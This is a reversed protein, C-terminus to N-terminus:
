VQDQIWTLYTRVMKRIEANDQVTTPFRQALEHVLRAAEAGLDASKAISPSLLGAFKALTIWDAGYPRDARERDFAMRREIGGGASQNAARDCPLLLVFSIRNRRAVTRPFVHDVNRGALVAAHEAAPLLRALVHRRYQAEYDDPAPDHYLHPIPWGAYHVLVTRGGLHTVQIMGLREFKRLNEVNPFAIQLRLPVSNSGPPPLSYEQAAVQKELAALFAPATTFM